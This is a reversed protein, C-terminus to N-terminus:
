LMGIRVPFHVYLAPPQDCGWAELMLVAKSPDADFLAGGAGALM